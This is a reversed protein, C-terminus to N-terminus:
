DTYPVVLVLEYDYDVRIEPETINKNVVHNDMMIHYKEVDGNESTTMFSIYLDQKTDTKFANTIINKSEIFMRRKAPKYILASKYLYFKSNINDYVNFFEDYNLTKALEHLQNIYKKSIIHKRLLIFISIALSTVITILMCRGYTMVHKTDLNSKILEQIIFILSMICTSIAMSIFIHIMIDGFIDVKDAYGKTSKIIDEKLKKDIEEKPHVYTIKM